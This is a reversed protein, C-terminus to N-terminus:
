DLPRHRHFTRATEDKRIAGALGAVDGTTVRRGRRHLKRLAFALRLFLRPTMSCAHALFARQVAEPLAHLIKSAAGQRRKENAEPNLLRFRLLAGPSKVGPTREVERVQRLIFDIRHMRFALRMSRGWRWGLAHLKKAAGHAGDLLTSLLRGETQPQPMPISRAESPIGWALVVFRFSVVRLLEAIGTPTTTWRRAHAKGEIKRTVLGLRHLRRLARTGESYTLGARIAAERGGIGPVEAIAALLRLRTWTWVFSRRRSRPHRRSRKPLRPDAAILEDIKRPAQSRAPALYSTVAPRM